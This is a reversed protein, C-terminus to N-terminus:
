KQFFSQFPNNVFAKQPARPTENEGEAEQAVFENSREKGKFHGRRAGGEGGGREGQRDSRKRDKNDRDGRKGKKKGREEKEQGLGDRRHTAARVIRPAPPERKVPAAKAREEPKPPRMSLSAKKKELDISLVRLKVIQGLRVIEHPARVFRDALESIHVLGDQELGIDVFAGFNTVNTVVGELEMGEKLDNVSQIDRRFLFTRFHGRPDRSGAMLLDRIMDLDKLSVGETALPGLDLGSLAKRNGIAQALPLNAAIAIREALSYQSPHVGTQDLPNSQSPWRLYAIAQEWVKGDVGSVRKLDARAGFVGNKHRDEVITKALPLTLGPIYQLLYESALNPNAGVRAVISQVIEHMAQQLRFRGVDHSYQGVGLDRLEVKVLEALPDQLRRAHFVAARYGKEWDAFEKKAADSKCYSDAIEDAWYALDVRKERDRLKERLKQLLGRAGSGGGIAIGQIGKEELMSELAQLFATIEEETQIPFSKQESAASHEDVYVCLATRVGTDVGLVKKNGLYPSMLLNRLNRTAVSISEDDARDKVEMRVDSSCREKLRRFAEATIKEWFEQIETKAVTAVATAPEVAPVTEGEAAPPTSIIPEPLGLYHARMKELFPTEEIEVRLKLTKEREARRLALMRHSPISRLAERHNVYNQFREAEKEKGQPVEAFLQGRERMELRLLRRWHPDDFVREVLIRAAKDLAAQATEVGKSANVYEAAKDILSKGGHDNSVIWDAFAGLGAHIAIQVEETKAPRLPAYLDELTQLDPCRELEQKKQADLLGAISELTRLISRRRRELDELEKWRASLERIEGEQMGYVAGARYRAIFPASLGEELYAVCASVGDKHRPFEQALREITTPSSM